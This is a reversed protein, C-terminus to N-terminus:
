EPSPSSTPSPEITPMPTPSVTPVITVEPSSEPTSTVVPITSPTPVLKLLEDLQEKTVCTENENEGVCLQKTVFKDKFGNIVSEVYAILEDLKTKQENVEL